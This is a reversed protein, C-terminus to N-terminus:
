IVYSSLTIPNAGKLTLTLYIRAQAYKASEPDKTWKTM